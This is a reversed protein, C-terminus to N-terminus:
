SSRLADLRSMLLSKVSAGVLEGSNILHDRAIAGSNNLAEVNDHLAIAHAEFAKARGIMPIEFQSAVRFIVKDDEDFLSFIYLYNDFEEGSKRYNRILVKTDREAAFNKRISQLANKSTGEGQMFRCNHGLVETAGYGTMRYFAENALILPDDPLTADSLTM